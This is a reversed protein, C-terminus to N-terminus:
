VIHTGFPNEGHVRRKDILYFQVPHALNTTGSNEIQAITGSLSGTDLLLSNLM